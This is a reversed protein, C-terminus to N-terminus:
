TNTQLGWLANPCLVSYDLLSYMKISTITLFDSIYLRTSLNTHAIKVYNSLTISEVKPNLRNTISSKWRQLIIRNLLIDSPLFLDFCMTWMVELSVISSVWNHKCYNYIFHIANPSSSGQKFMQPIVM